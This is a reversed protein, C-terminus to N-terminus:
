GLAELGQPLDPCEEVLVVGVPLSGGISSRGLCGIVAAQLEDLGAEPKRPLPGAEHEEPEPVAHAENEEAGNM